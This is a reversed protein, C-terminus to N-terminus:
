AVGVGRLVQNQHALELSFGTINGVVLLFQYQHQGGHAMKGPLQFLPAEPYAISAQIILIVAATEGGLNFLDESVRAAVVAHHGFGALIPQHLLEPLPLLRVRFVGQLYALVIAEQATMVLKALPSLSALLQAHFVEIAPHATAVVQQHVLLLRFAAVPVQICVVAAGQGRGSLRGAGQAESRVINGPFHHRQNLSAKRVMEAIQFREAPGHRGFLGLLCQLSEDVFAQRQETVILIGHTFAIRPQIVGM